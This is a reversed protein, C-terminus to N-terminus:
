LSRVNVVKKRLGEHMVGLVPATTSARLAPVSTWAACRSLKTSITLVKSKSPLILSKQPSRGYIRM